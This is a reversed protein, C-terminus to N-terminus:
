VPNPFLIKRQLAVLRMKIASSLEQSLAKDVFHLATERNGMSLYISAFKEMASLSLQKTDKTAKEYSFAQRYLNELGPDYFIANTTQKHLTIAKEIFPLASAIDEMALYIAVFRQVTSASSQDPDQRLKEVAHDYQGLEWYLDSLRTFTHSYDPDMTRALQYEAEIEDVFDTLCDYNTAYTQLVVGLQLHVLGSDPFDRAAQKGIEVGRWALDRSINPGSEVLALSYSLLSVIDNPNSETRCRAAELRERTRQEKTEPQVRVLKSLVKDHQWVFKLDPVLAKASYPSVHICYQVLDPRYEQPIPSIQSGYELLLRVIRNDVVTDNISKIVECITECKSYRREIRYIGDGLSRAGGTIKKWGGEHKSIRDCIERGEYSMGTEVLENEVLAVPSQSDFVVAFNFRRPLFESPPAPLLPTALEMEKVVVEKYPSDQPQALVEFSYKGDIFCYRVRVPIPTVKYELKWVHASDIIQRCKLLYDYIILQCPAIALGLETTTVGRM